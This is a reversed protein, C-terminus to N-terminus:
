ARDEAARAKARRPYDGDAPGILAGVAERAIAESFEWRYAGEVLARGARGLVARLRPERLLRVVEAAFSEADDAILLHEGGRVALGECGVSTSVVAKEMALAELIKLRTGSGVLIPAVAVAAADLLPPVQPVSGAVLIGPREALRRVAPPPQRGIIQWTADPIRARIHPWCHDAFFLAAQVNPHYGFTGAFVVRHRLERRQPNPCFQRLDVGNPVVRIDQRGLLGSLIAQERESTVFVLDARQCCALEASRVRHYELWNYGKRLASREREYARRLLEFELNHQDIITHMPAALRYGAIKVGEFLVADPSETQLVRDLTRQMEPLLEQALSYARGSALALTQRLRRMRQNSRRVVRIREAMPELETRWSDAALEADDALVVLTVSHEEALAHLLHYNRSSAGSWSGPLRSCVMLIRVM